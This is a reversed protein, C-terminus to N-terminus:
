HAAVAKVVRIIEDGDRLQDAVVIAGTGILKFNDRTNRVTEQAEALTVENVGSTGYIKVAM